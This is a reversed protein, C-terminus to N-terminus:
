LYLIHGKLIKLCSHLNHSSDVSSYGTWITCLRPIFIVLIVTFIIALMKKFLRHLAYADQQFKGTSYTRIYTCKACLDAMWQQFISFYVYCHKEWEFYIYQRELTTFNSSTRYGIPSSGAWVTYLSILFLHQKPKEPM